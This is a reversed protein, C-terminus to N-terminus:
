SELPHRGRFGKFEAMPDVKGGWATAARGVPILLVANPMRSVSPILKHNWECFSFKAAGSFGQAWFYVTTPIGGYIRYVHYM